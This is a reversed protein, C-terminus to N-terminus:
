TVPYPLPLFALRPGDPRDLRVDQAEASSMQIVALLDHGGGPAPAANVVTGCAQDPLDPSYLHTGAAPPEPQDLHALYMRRKLKGLYQTRAVIEQGPYCGKQFNVGGILEFNAMQPVFEEVTAATIQPVGANIESWRWAPTGAPRAATALRAWLAAADGTPLVVQLRTATLRIVQVAGDRVVHMDAEPIPLGAQGLAEPAQPGVLGFGTLEDCADFIKVKARLVYMGLKKQIQPQLEREIQLLLDSQDRWILFNALMRGKASCWSNWQATAPALKKLDNTFLNHLFGQADEGSVRILGTHTLPVLATGAQAARLEAAADGFDGIRNGDIHAGSHALLETLTPNM